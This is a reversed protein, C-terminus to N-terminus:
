DWPRFGALRFHQDYSFAQGLKNRHMLAFSICDTFSVKQDAYKEFLDLSRLEDKEDPRLLTLGSSSFIRRATEAAFGYGATRAILTITEDLVFNSTFCRRGQDRLRQWSQVSREHYQDRQVYRAVFPGTDIFIM